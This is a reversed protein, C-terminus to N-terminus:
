PLYYIMNSLALEFLFLRFVNLIYYLIQCKDFLAVTNVPNALVRGRSM